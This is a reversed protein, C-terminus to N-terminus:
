KLQKGFLEISTTCKGNNFTQFYIQERQIETIHCRKSEKHASCKIQSRQSKPKKEPFHQYFYYAKSHQLLPFPAQTTQLYGLNWRKYWLHGQTNGPNIESCLYLYYQSICQPGIGGEEFFYGVFIRNQPQTLRKLM